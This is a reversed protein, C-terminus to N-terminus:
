PKGQQPKSTHCDFCDLKVAAYAHCSQCFNTSSANVSNTTQSAHCDVCAKLSYKGTRIGGRLTDSRQHKLLQMHNRRMFASDEVCQGGRAAEIVPQPVQGQTQPAGPNSAEAGVCALLLWGAALWRRAPSRSRNAFRPM